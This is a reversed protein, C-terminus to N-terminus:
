KIPKFMRKWRIGHIINKGVEKSFWINVAKGVLHDEPVLGWFRSDASNYRNDGLVFYYDMQFKYSDALKTNIYINDGYIELKNKEYVRIIREYLPLNEKTLKIVTSKSPILFPGFNGPSWLYNTNHPFIETNRYILSPESYREILRVEPNNRLKEYGHCDMPIIHINNSPNYNIEDPMVGIDTLLTDNLKNNRTRVYYKLIVTEPDDLIEGNVSLINKSILITDGPLGICRKVFHDRKDVPHAVKTSLSSVYERGFQRILSYYNQGPQEVIVTDGEPFNFVIIDNRKVKSFGKLRKYKREPSIKYTVKGNSLVSPLFPLSLPTFPIRPGYALKSVFIYDGAYLAKEMSSSPIRYAEIIFLKIIITIGLAIILATIWGFIRYIWVPFKKM